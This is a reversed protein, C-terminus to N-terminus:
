SQALLFLTRLLYIRCIIEVLMLFRICYLIILLPNFSFLFPNRYLVQLNDHMALPSLESLFNDCLSLKRLGTLVGIGDLDNLGCENLSLSQLSNFGVGLDRVSTIVSGDLTLSVLNPLFDSAMYISHINTDIQLTLHKIDNVSSHKTHRLVYEEDIVGDLISQFDDVSDLKQTALAGRSEDDRKLVERDIRNSYSMTACFYYPREQVLFEDTIVFFQKDHGLIKSEFIFIYNKTNM